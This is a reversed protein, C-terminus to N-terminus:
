NFNFGFFSKKDLPKTNVMKNKITVSTTEKEDKYDELDIEPHEELLRDTNLTSRVFVSKIVEGDDSVYKGAVLKKTLKDKLMQLKDKAKAYEVQAVVLEHIEENTLTNIEKTM